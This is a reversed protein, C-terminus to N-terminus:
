ASKKKKTYRLACYKCSEVAGPRALSIYELPHGLAGGGGDCVAMEGEVEIIPVKHVLEMANSRHKGLKYPSEKYSHNELRKEEKSRNFEPSSHVAPALPPRSAMSRVAVSSVNRPLLAKRTIVTCFQM